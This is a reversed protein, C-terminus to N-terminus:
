LTARPPSPAPSTDSHPVLPHSLHVPAHAPPSPPHSIASRRPSRPHLHPARSRAPAPSAPHPPRAQPSPAPPTLPCLPLYFISFLFHFNSFLFWRSPRRLKQSHRKTKKRSFFSPLECM